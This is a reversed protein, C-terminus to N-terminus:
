LFVAAIRRVPIRGTRTGIASLPRTRGNRGADWVFEPLMKQFRFCARDISHVPINVPIATRNWHFGLASFVDM